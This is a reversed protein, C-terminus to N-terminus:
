LEADLQVSSTIGTGQVGNWKLFYPQGGGGFNGAHNQQTFEASTESTVVSTFANSSHVAGPGANTRFDLNQDTPQTFTPKIRMRREFNLMGQASSGNVTYGWAFATTPSSDSFDRGIKQFYRQCKILNEDFNEHEFETVQIPELQLGTIEIFNSTSSYLNSIGAARTNNTPSAWTNATYSGGSYTSGAVLWFLITMSGNHDNDLAGTTDGAYLLEVRNWSSTVSFQQQNVRNNDHDELECMYTANGNGKVYFSLAMVKASSTGKAFHQLDQGEFTYKLQIYDGAAPSSLATTTQLKVSKIFGPLDSVGNQSMTLRGSTSNHSFKIRDVTRCIDTTGSGLGTESNSRQAIHMAGNVVVNRRGLNPVVQSGTDQIKSLPM